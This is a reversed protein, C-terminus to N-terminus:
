RHGIGLFHAGAGLMVEDEEAVRVLDLILEQKRPEAWDTDFTPAWMAPGEVAVLRPSAFGADTLEARLDAPRHFYTTAFYPRGPPHLVRWAEALARGREPAEVLHYLPGLLLVADVSGDAHALDRADGVTCSALADGQEHSARQAQAVHHAVPDILHVEHGQAALWLAHVGTAGGVDLVVTPPDSLYRRMLEQTRTRELDGSADDLREAEVYVAYYAFMEPPLDTPM